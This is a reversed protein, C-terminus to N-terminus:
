IRYSVIQTIVNCQQNLLIRFALSTPHFCYTPQKNPVEEFFFFIYLVRDLYKASITVERNFCVCSTLSIKHLFIDNSKYSLM